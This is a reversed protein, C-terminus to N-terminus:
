ISRKLTDRLILVIVDDNHRRSCKRSVPFFMLFKLYQAIENFMNYVSPGHSTSPVEHAWIAHAAIFCNSKRTQYVHPNGNVNNLGGTLKPEYKLGCESIDRKALPFLRDFM